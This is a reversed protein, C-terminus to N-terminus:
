KPYIDLKFILIFNPYKYKKVYFNIEYTIETLYSLFESLDYKNLVDELIADDNQNKVGGGIANM